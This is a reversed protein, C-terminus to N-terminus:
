FGRHRLRDEPGTCADNAQREQREANWNLLCALDVGIDDVSWAPVYPHGSASNDTCGEVGNLLGAHCDLLVELM